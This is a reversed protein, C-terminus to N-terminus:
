PSEPNFMATIFPGFKRYHLAELVVANTNATAIDNVADSAEYIGARWGRISHKTPAVKALLKKTYATEYLMHWGVAAKTSITRLDPYSKGDEALPNWAQGNAYVTNYIFYPAQDIHDESVATLQQTQEFRGLQAHYIREALERNDGDLGFEFAMLLYPESLVYNHADYLIVSRSDTAIAQGEVTEYKLYDTLEAATHSNLGLLALARAGYEEYGLRGEQVLETDESEPIVRAGYMVGGQLMAQLDFRQLVARASQSHPSDTALLVYLPVMLRAIDLASWGIGRAQPENAYNTMNLHTTHYVKNPLKADFLPLKQLSNLIGGIRFDFEDQGILALNHAAIIALMASAQDWITTSPFNQVSRVLGTEPDTNERFYAWASHAMEQEEATLSRHPAFALPSPQISIRNQHSVLGNARESGIAIAATLCLGVCFVFSSRLHLFKSALKM